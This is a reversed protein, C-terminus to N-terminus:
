LHTILNSLEESNHNTTQIYIQNQKTALFNHSMFFRQSNTTQMRSNQQHHSAISPAEYKMSTQNLHNKVNLDRLDKRLVQNKFSSVMFEISTLKFGLHIVPLFYSSVIKRLYCVYVLIIQLVWILKALHSLHLELKIRKNQKKNTESILLRFLMLNLICFM